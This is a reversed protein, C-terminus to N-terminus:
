ADVLSQLWPLQRAAAAARKMVQRDTAVHWGFYLGTCVAVATLHARHFNQRLYPASAMAGAGALAWGSAAAGCALALDPAWATPVHPWPAPLFAPASAQNAAAEEMFLLRASTIFGAAAPVVGLAGVAKARAGPAVLCAAAIGLTTASGGLAMFVPARHETTDQMDEATDWDKPSNAPPPLSPVSM